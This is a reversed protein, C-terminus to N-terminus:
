LLPAWLRDDLLDTDFKSFYLTTCVKGTYSLNKKGTHLSSQM